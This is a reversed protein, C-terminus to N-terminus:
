ITRSWALIVDNLQPKQHQLVHPLQNKTARANLVIFQLRDHVKKSSYVLNAAHSIATINDTIESKHARDPSLATVTPWLM